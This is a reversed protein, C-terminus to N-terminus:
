ANDATERNQSALWAEGTAIVTPECPWLRGSEEIYGVHLVVYDKPHLGLQTQKDALLQNFLRCVPASHRELVPQGIFTEAVKDYIVHVMRSVQSVQSPVEM